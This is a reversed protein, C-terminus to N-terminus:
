RREPASRSAPDLTLDTHRFDDGQCLLPEGTAQALAYVFCDGFNLSARHRGKGFRWFATRAHRVHTRSVSVVTVRARRLFDEVDQFAEDTGTRAAHVISAELATAASMLRRPAAIVAHLFHPGNPENQLIAILASTDFVM